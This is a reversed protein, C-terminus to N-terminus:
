AKKLYLHQFGEDDEFSALIENGFLKAFMPSSKRGLPSTIKVELVQGSKMERLAKITKLPPLPCSVGRLDLVRDATIGQVEWQAQKVMKTMDM